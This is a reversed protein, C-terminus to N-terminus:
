APRPAHFRANAAAEWACAVAFLLVGLPLPWWLDLLLLPIGAVIGIFGVLFALGLPHGRRLYKRGLRGLFAFLLYKSTRWIFRGYRIKSRETGYKAPIPVSRMRLGALNSEVMMSNEFHYGSRLRDLDLRRLGDGSIAIYGNQPDAINWYGSAIRTLLDLLFNGTRRWASMGTMYGARLRNGKTFDAEGRAIPELVKPLHAPDMQNDGAMGAVIDAGWQLAAQFNTKMAGGVGRNREHRHLHIRPDNRMAQRVRDSTGDTSGDDCVFVADVYAPIGALTPGILEEEFYAPVAVAIRKGM